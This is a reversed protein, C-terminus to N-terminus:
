CSMGLRTGQRAADFVGVTARLSETADSATIRPPEDGTIVKCFHKLQLIYADELSHEIVTSQLTNRWEAAADPSNWLTLNPFDLSGETGMFRIANQATKPFAANEGTACEWSWPSHTQDSLIFSGLAGSKFRLLLAAVDEKEYGQVINSSEAMISVIDGCIYRLSDIEHILNTLIPGAKWDKRWEPDYYNDHKRMNWQGSIAILKGLKGSSIIERAEHVQPYYRRQHGVLVHRQVSNSRDIVKEAESITAMIPKEVLVHAGADLSQLTPDLHHETPTAVIVGDPKCTELMTANDSFCPVSLDDALQKAAAFPDAIAVLEIENIAGVARLHRKGIVGAGILALRVKKM